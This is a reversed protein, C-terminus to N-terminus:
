SLADEKKEQKSGVVIPYVLRVLSRAYVLLILGIIVYAVSHSLFYNASYFVSSYQRTACSIYTMLEELGTLIEWLGMLRIGIEFLERSKM